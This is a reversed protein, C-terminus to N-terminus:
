EGSIEIQSYDVMEGADMIALTFRLERLWEKTAVGSLRLTDEEEDADVVIKEDDIDLFKRLRKEVFGVDIARYLQWEQTVQDDRLGYYQMIVRPETSMPDRLGRVVYQNKERYAETVIIGRERRLGDVFNVWDDDIITLGSIDMHEFEPLRDIRNRAQTLWDHRAQGEVRLTGDAIQFEVTPPPDLADTIRAMRRVRQAHFFWALGALLICAPVIWKLHKLWGPTAKAKKPKPKERPQDVYESELLEELDVRAPELTETDGEFDRLLDSHQIHVQEVVEQMRRRFHVPPEGRVAAALLAKSGHEVYVSLENTRMVQLDAGAESSHEFSERTFGQIASLLSSVLDADDKPDASVSQMLLGTEPDILLIQEIRYVLTHLLVVEGFPKGTRWAEIRWRIGRPSFSHDLAKNLTQVMAQIQQSISRRIAPGMIPSIADVLSRPDRKISDQFADSLTPGLARALQKKPANTIAQPLVETVQDADVQKERVEERLQEISDRTPGVVLERLHKLQDVQKSSVDQSKKLTM